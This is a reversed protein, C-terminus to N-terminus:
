PEVYADCVSFAIIIDDANIETMSLTIQTYPETAKVIYTLGSNNGIGKICAVDITSTEQGSILFYDALCDSLINAASITGASNTTVRHSDNKSYWNSVIGINNVPKSFLLTVSRLAKSNIKNGLRMASGDDRMQAGCHAVDPNVGLAQPLGETRKSVPILNGGISVLGWLPFNPINGGILVDCNSAASAEHVEIEFSCDSGGISLPFSLSGSQTPVGTIEFTLAGAGVAFNGKPLTAYVGSAEIVVEDHWGGNGNTYPVSISHRDVISELLVLEAGNEYVDGCSFKAAGPGSITKSCINYWGEVENRYQEICVTETNYVLLGAVPEKINNRQDINMRPLLIGKDASNINLAASPITEDIGIVVNGAEYINDTNSTAIMSTGSILWPSVEGKMVVWKSGEWVYFGETFPSDKSVNYVTLGIHSRDTSGPVHDPVCPHLTNLEELAVRPFGIGKTANASGDNINEIDKIQLLAGSVPAEGLGITVQAGLGLSSSFFLTIFIFFQLGTSKM